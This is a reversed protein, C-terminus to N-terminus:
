AGEQKEFKEPHERKFQEVEKALNEMLKKDVDEYSRQTFDQAIVRPKEKKQSGKLVAELYALNPAGHKVCSSIGAIMKELGNDAYLRILSARVSNSVKFGADDAADLVRNQESQIKRAEDDDIFPESESSSESVSESQIPNRYCESANSKMQKCNSAIAKLNGDDAPPEPYKSKKNRITQHNEWNPFCLYNEDDVEYILICGRDSLEQLGEEIDSVTVQERLPFCRGKIIAPRADGRGYDDVYTILCTWLRFLFDSLANIKDSTCVSEKILRNPM